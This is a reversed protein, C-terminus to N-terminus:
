SAYSSAIDQTVKVIHHNTGVQRWTMLKGTSSEKNACKQIYDDGWSFTPGFYYKSNIVSKSLDRYQEFGYKKDEVKEGEYKKDKKVKEGKVIYWGDDITYRITASPNAKRMDLELVKPHSIAYDGFTPLRLEAKKLDVVLRKYLKWEYRPLIEGGKKVVAMTEPFSTGLITFTRWDDLYPFSSVITQIAKSFGELPIFNPAGLDLILDCNTSQITLTALLSDIGTKFLGKAAQEITIRLCVGSKDKDSVTKIEQQYEGDRLLGTVPIAQCGLWRLDNFISRIPHVGNKMRKAPPILNLDVFCPSSGWKKYIKKLAFDTLLQDITKKEKEEEFDWGLEPIEVLPTFMRKTTDRLRWVAQYEGQKWRLCPVYHTHNFSM